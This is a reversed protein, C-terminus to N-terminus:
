YIPSLRGYTQIAYHNYFSDVKQINFILVSKSLAVYVGCLSWYFDELFLESFTLFHFYNM